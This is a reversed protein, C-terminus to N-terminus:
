LNYIANLLEAAKGAVEGTVAACRAKREDSAMNVGAAEMFKGSSDLCNVPGSVSTPNKFEPQYAPFPHERYWAMLEGTIKKADAPACAMAIALAAGGLSGCLSGVGYGGSANSLLEAPFQTYPYGVAEALQGALADFAGMGCGGFSYYSKYGREITAQPDLKVYTFPHPAIGTGAVAAAVNLLPFASSALAVGALVKGSTKLFERRTQLNEM